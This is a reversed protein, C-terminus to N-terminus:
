APALAPHKAVIADSAAALAGCLERISADWSSSAGGGGGGGDHGGAEDGGAGGAGFDVFGDVQDLSAGPLRRQAIMRGVVREAAPPPVGLLAGLADFSLSAYLRGAAATNHELLARAVVSTGDAGTARQHPALGAEFAAADGPPVLRGHLVRQLMAAVAPRVSALRPDAALAALVRTRGAGPPALVGCVAAKDLLEVVSAEEGRDGVATVVELYRQAAPLFARKADLCVAYMAGYQLQLAVDGTRPVVEGALRLFREVSVEDEGRVFAQAVCLWTKARQHDTFDGGGMRAAGLVHAARLHDGHASCVLYAPWRLAHDAEELQEVGRRAIAAIGHLAVAEVLDDDAVRALTAGAHKLAPRAVALPVAEDVLADLTARLADGDARAAAADFFAAYGAARAAPDAV